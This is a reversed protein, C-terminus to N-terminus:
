EQTSQVIALRQFMQFRKNIMHVSNLDITPLILMLNKINLIKIDFLGFIVDKCGFLIIEIVSISILYFRNGSCRM